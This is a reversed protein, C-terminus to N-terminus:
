ERRNTVIETEEPHLDAGGFLCEGGVRRQQLTNPGGQGLGLLVDGDFGSVDAAQLRAPAPDLLGEIRERHTVFNMSDRREIGDGCRALGHRRRTSSRRRRLPGRRRTPSTVRATTTAA